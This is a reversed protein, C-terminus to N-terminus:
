TKCRARFAEMEAATQYTHNGQRVSRRIFKPRRKTEEVIKAVYEGIVSLGLLNLGGFLLVLCIITSIGHPVHPQVLKMIIQFIIGLFALGTLIVGLYSMVELPVFSFSFIGKKAWWINRRWSNTSRGFMREPRVYDVGTQRFGVWARLGRLFQDTEPLTLLENVVRRDLLSFDGADVPIPVSSIGRFVRYFMRYCSNLWLPAERKVRKGYVVDYGKRWQEVFAPVLEPPDQLDGDFLVVADGTALGMGSLFASQSGFNRSHEVAVVHPDDRTLAELVERSNDPSADNVFLIEYDVNLGRFVETLRRHMVPIAEADRYCAVIASLRTPAHVRMATDHAPVSAHSKMWDLTKQLGEELTTEAKWGLEANARSPDGYWERLDWRRNPMSGWVPETKVGCLRGASTAIERITTRKGTAINFSHGPNRRVGEAAALIAANLADDVYLFDRSIDPEVLPPFEGRATHALLTPVLRDSAEWPGYVSYFRLNVVPLKRVEGYYRVLHAASAKSAAYISNPVLEADERPAKCNLGYESSTGAHVLAAFGGPGAAEILNKLGLVNTALIRDADEQRAYAGFAAFDFVTQFRYREFLRALTETMTVDGHVVRDQPLTALRWPIYSQHTVAYVDDRVARLAHVLNAGIFGGAGFVVVPGPLGAALTRCASSLEPM